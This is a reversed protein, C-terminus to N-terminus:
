KYQARHEPASRFMCCSRFTVLLAVAQGQQQQIREAMKRAIPKLDLDTLLENAHYYGVM